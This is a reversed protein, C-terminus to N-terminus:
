LAIQKKPPKDRFQWNIFPLTRRSNKNILGIQFGRLNTARNMLGIQVGRVKNGSNYGGCISVGKVVYSCNTLGSISVGHMEGICSTFGAVNVGKIISTYNAQGPMSLVLGDMDAQVYKQARDTTYSEFNDIDRLTFAGRVYIFFMVPNIQLTVGNIKLSDRESKLNEPWAGFAFGNVRDVNSPILAIRREVQKAMTSKQAEASIGAFLFGLLFVVFAYKGTAKKASLIGSALNRNM